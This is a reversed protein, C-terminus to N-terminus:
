QPLNWHIMNETKREWLKKLKNTKKYGYLLIEVKKNEWCRRRCVELQELELEMKVMFSLIIVNMRCREGLKREKWDEDVKRNRMKRYALDTDVFTGIGICLVLVKHM